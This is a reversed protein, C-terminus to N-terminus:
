PKVEVVIDGDDDAWPVGGSDQRDRGISYLLYGKGQPKYVLPGDSFRDVPIEPLYKPALKDLSEPWAGTEARFAALALALMELETQMRAQHALEPARGLSPVLISVLLDTVARTLAKRGARGRIKMLIMKFALGAGTRRDLPMLDQQMQSYAQAREAPTPKRAAEAMRDYWGNFTRLMLNWDLNASNGGQGGSGQVAGVSGGRSLMMVCDLVMFREGVDLTDALERGQPLAQLDAIMAKAQEATLKGGTAMATGPGAAMAELSIGVLYQVLMLDQRLLRGLRHVALVDSWASAAQGQRLKRQARALLARAAQRFDGLDLRLITIVQPPDSNSIVPVYYRSRKSAAVLLDLPGANADLWEALAPYDEPSWPDSAADALQQELEDETPADPDAPDARGILWDGPTVYYDGQSRLHKLGMRRLIKGRTQRPLIGPGMARLILVAANNDPTVGESVMADLAAVYNITGDPMVPGTVYTTERSIEIQIRSPWHLIVVAVLGALLLVGAVTLRRKGKPTM